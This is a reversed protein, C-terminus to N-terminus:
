PEKIDDKFPIARFYGKYVKSGMTFNHHYGPIKIQQHFNHESEIASSKDSDRCTEKQKKKLKGSFVEEEFFTKYFNEM